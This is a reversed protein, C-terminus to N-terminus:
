VRPGLKRIAGIGGTERHYAGDHLQNEIRGIAKNIAEVLAQELDEGADDVQQSWEVDTSRGQFMEPDEVFLQEMSSRFADAIDLSNEHITAEFSAMDAISERLLKAKEEKIIRRLQRKTIKM